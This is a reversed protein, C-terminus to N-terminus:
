SAERQLSLVQFKRPLLALQGTSLLPAPVAALDAAFTVPSGMHLPHLHVSTPGHLHSMCQSSHKRKGHDM